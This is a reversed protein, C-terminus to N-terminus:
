RAAVEGLFREVTKTYAEATEYYVNHPAGAIVELQSGPVLEHLRRAADALWDLEGVIIQVPSRIAGVRDALEERTPDSATSPRPHRSAELRTATSRLRLYRDYMLPQQEPFEPTFGGTGPIFLVDEAIPDLMARRRAEPMADAGPPMVGMGSPILARATDPHRTSWRLLTLAGMSNGALIPESIGLAALFGELEGARDPEPQGAPSNASHGHNVSDYAVCRYREALVAFQQYWAQACSGFGHLFVITPGDGREVYHVDRGDVEVFAM